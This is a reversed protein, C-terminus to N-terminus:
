KSVPPAIVERAHWAAIEARSGVGLKDMLHQVHSEVTRPSLFLREGIDRNGLGEAVLAAVELERRTVRSGSGGTAPTPAVDELAFSMARVQDLERGVEMERALRADGMRRRLDAEAADHFVQWPATLSSGTYAWCAAAIGLLRAAREDRGLDATVWALSEISWARHWIDDLRRDIRLAELLLSAAREPDGLRWTAAALLHLHTVRTWSEGVARCAEIAQGSLRASEDLDGGLFAVIGIEIMAWSRCMPDAAPDTLVATALGVAKDGEGESVLLLGTVVRIYADIGPDSARGNLDEARRLFRRGDDLRASLIAIWGAAVHARAGLAADTAHELFPVFWRAAEAHSARTMWYWLSATAIRLGDEGAGAARSSELAVRLNAAEAAMEDLARAQDPGWWRRDLDVARELMWARHRGAVVPEEAAERLRELGYERMAEILRYRDRPLDFAVMSRDVLEGLVHEVDAPEIPLFAAVHEAAALTFGDAFISLRRWVIRQPEDLLDHSWDIAGRLTRQRAPAVLDPSGLDALRGSLREELEHLGLHRLRAAALEIALPMGDLRACLQVALSRQADDLVFSPSARRVRDTFLTVAADDPLGDIPFLQEGPVMLARRSTALVIVGECARQLATVLEAAPDRVHECNDLVLLFRRRGLYEVLAARPEGGGRLGVSAMVVEGVQAPEGVGALYAVAIGADFSRSLHAVLEEALRTKGSGGPGTITLLRNGALLLRLRALEDRRGVFTTSPPRAGSVDVAKIQV